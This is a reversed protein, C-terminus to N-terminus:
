PHLKRLSHTQCEQKPVGALSHCSLFSTPAYHARSCSTITPSERLAVGSFGDVVNRSSSVYHSHSIDCDLLYDATGNTPDISM